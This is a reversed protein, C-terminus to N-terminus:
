EQGRATSAVELREVVDQREWGADWAYRLAKEEPPYPNADRREGDIRAGGGAGEAADYREREALDCWPCSGDRQRDIWERGCDTCRCGRGEVTLMYEITM